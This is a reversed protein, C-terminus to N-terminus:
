QRQEDVVFNFKRSYFGYLDVTESWSVTARLGADNRILLIHRKEVPLKYEKAKDHLKEILDEDKAINLRLVERTDSKFAHYRFQPVGFAIAIKVGLAVLALYFLIKFLRM